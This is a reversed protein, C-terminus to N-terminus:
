PAAEAVTDAEEALCYLSSSGRLYLESGALAPSAAFDEDLQNEALVEFEPGTGLVVTTGGRGVIYIRGDAAVLSSYVGDIGPLRVPGFRKEGTKADLSTLIGTNVKLFYLQDGYLVPSPVYPTDEDYSWAFEDETGAAEPRIAKFAAGRFGSTAYVLGNAYIPSPVVNVTQGGVAWREEGTALDYGRVAGTASVVVETVGDREIVIPTSWSTVEEREHRWREEGSTKDFVVLFSDGEHDWNLVLADGALVPSSGEGFGRRTAMDGLDKSWLLDGELDYVYTGLSGFHAVLVEGDTVPSASAWSADTHTGEHPEKEIPVHEWTKEGTARDYALVTMRLPGDPAVGRQGEQPGSPARTPVATVVYVREGWVIPSGHGYGPIDAKWRVNREESWELPPEADPAAGSALPGRWQPWAAEGAAAFTAPTLALALLAATVRNPAM